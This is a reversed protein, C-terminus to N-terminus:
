VIGYNTREIIQQLAKGYCPCETSQVKHNSPKNIKKCNSCTPPKELNPCAKINHGPAACHGCVDEKSKCYKTIHGFCQCKYCRQAVIYDNIRCSTLDVYVRHRNILIKRIGPECEFVWHVFDGEKPGLKFIPKCGKIFEEKSMALTFNKNYMDEVLKNNSLDAPIDYIIVKPTKKQREIVEFQETKLAKNNVILRNKDEESDL